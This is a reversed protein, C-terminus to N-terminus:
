LPSYPHTSHHPKLGRTQHFPARSCTPLNAYIHYYEGTDEEDDVGETELRLMVGNPQGLLVCHLSQARALGELKGSGHKVLYERCWKGKLQEPQWKLGGAAPLVIRYLSGASTIALIHINQFPSLFIGPLPLIRDPFVFRVPPVNTNLSILELTSGADILRLIITGTTETHFVSSQSAHDAPPDVSTSREALPASRTASPLIVSATQEVPYLSSIHTAILVASDM